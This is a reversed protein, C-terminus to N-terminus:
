DKFFLEYREPDTRKMHYKRGISLLELAEAREIGEHEAFREVTLFDNFYSLWFQILHEKM